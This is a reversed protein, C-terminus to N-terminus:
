IVVLSIRGRDAVAEKAEGSGGTGVCATLSLRRTCALLPVFTQVTVDAYDDFTGSPMTM